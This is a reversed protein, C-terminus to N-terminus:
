KESYVEIEYIRFDGGQNGFVLGDFDGELSTDKVEFLLKDDLLIDMEGRSNRRLEVNHIEGSLQQDLDAVALVVQGDRSTRTLKVQSEKGTIYALSYGNIRSSGQYVGFNARGNDQLGNLNVRLSFSNTISTASYIEAYGKYQTNNPSQDKSKLFIDSFIGVIEQAGNKSKEKTEAKAVPVSSYLYERNVVDFDGSEVFWKPNLSFDGDRFSDFLVRTSWPRDYDALIASIRQKYQAGSLKSKQGEDDLDRLQQVLVESRSDTVTELVTDAFNRTRLDELIERSVLGDVVLGFDSQYSRIARLTRQGPLGDIPGPDYGADRLRRQLERKEDRTLDIQVDATPPNPNSWTISSQQKEDGELKEAEPQESLVDEDANKSKVSVPQWNAAEEQALSIQQASMFPTLKDRARRAERDGQSAAINFWKHAQVYDQTTGYGKSYVYGLMFQADRNGAMAAKSFDRFAVAYDRRDFAAMADDFTASVALSSTALNLAIIGAIIIQQLKGM